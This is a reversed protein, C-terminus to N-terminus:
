NAPETEWVPRPTSERVESIKFRLDVNVPRPRQLRGFIELRERIGVRLKPPYM